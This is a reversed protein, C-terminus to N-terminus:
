KYQFISSMNQLEKLKDVVGSKDTPRVIIDDPNNNNGRLRELVFAYILGNDVQEPLCSFLEMFITSALDKPITNDTIIRSLFIALVRCISGYDVNFDNSWIRKFNFKRLNKPQVQALTDDGFVAKWLDDSSIPLFFFRNLSFYCFCDLYEVFTIVSMEYLVQILAPSSFHKPYQQKTEFGNYRLYNVDDSLIPLLKQKAIITADCLENHIKNQLADETRLADSVDDVLQYNSDFYGITQVFKDRLIKTAEADKEVFQMEGNLRCLSGPSNSYPTLKDLLRYLFNIVSQPIIVNPCKAILKPLIDLSSLIFTSTGDIVFSKHNNVVDFALEKQKQYDDNNLSCRIVGRNERRIRELANEMGGEALALMALPFENKIYEDFFKDANASHDALCKELYQFDMKDDNMPTEVIQVGKLLGQQSLKHFKEKAKNFIYNEISYIKEIKYKQMSPSYKTGLEVFDCLEKHIFNQYQDTSPCIPIAELSDGAGIYYWQELEALQVFTNDEIKKLTDLSLRISDGLKMSLTFFLKAYEVDTLSKKQSIAKVIVDLADENKNNSLLTPVEVQMMFEYSKNINPYRGLVELAKKDWSVDKIGMRLCANIMNHLLDELKFIMSDKNEAEYSLLTEGLEFVKLPKDLCLCLAFMRVKIAIIHQEEITLELERSLIKLEFDCAEKSCVVHGVVKCGFKDLRSFDLKKIIDFAQDFEGQQYHLFVLLIDQQDKIPDPLNKIIENKLEVKIEESQILSECIDPNRSIFVIIKDTNEDQLDQCFLAYDNSGINEFFLKGRNLLQKHLSLQIVILNLVHDKIFMNSKELHQLLTELKFSTIVNFKLITALANCIDNDVYCKLIDDIGSNVKELVMDQQERFAWVMIKYSNLIVRIRPSPIFQEFFLNEVLEIENMFEDIKIELEEPTECLSWEVSKILLKIEYGRFYRDRVVIASEVDSFSEAMQQQNAHRIALVIHFRVRISPDSEKEIIKEIDSLDIPEQCFLNRNFCQLKYLWYENDIKAARELWLKNQELNHELLYIEALLLYSEINDPYRTVLSQYKTKAEEVKEEKKLLRCELLEYQLEIGSSSIIQSNHGLLELLSKASEINEEDLQKNILEFSATIIKIQDSTNTDIGLDLYDAENLTEFIEEIDEAILVSFGISPNEKKLEAIATEVTQGAGSYKDNYVFFYKRIEAIKDWNKQLKHFDDKCKKAAAAGQISPTKPSYVQYYEGTKKIWGDNGGDGGGPPIKRFGVNAKQMINEFFIQFETGYLEHIKLKFQLMIYRKDIIKM